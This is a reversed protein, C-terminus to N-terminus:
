VFSKLCHLFPYSYNFTIVIDCYYHENDDRNNYGKLDVLGQRTLTSLAFEFEDWLSLKM